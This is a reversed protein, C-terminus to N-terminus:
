SGPPNDLGYIDHVASAPRSSGSTRGYVVRRARLQEADTLQVGHSLQDPYSESHSYSGITEQQSRVGIPAAMARVVVEVVLSRLGVPIPDLDIIWDEDKGCADAVLLSAAELLQGAQLTQADTMASSELGLRAAVEDIDALLAGVLFSDVNVAVSGDSLTLETRYSHLGNTSPTYAASYIGTSSTTVAPTATTGDPLTVTCVEDTSDTLDGDADRLVWPGLDITQGSPYHKM